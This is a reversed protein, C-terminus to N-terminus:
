LPATSLGLSMLSRDLHGACLEDPKFTVEPDFVMFRKYFRTSAAWNLRKVRKLGEVEALWLRGGTMDLENKVGQSGRM